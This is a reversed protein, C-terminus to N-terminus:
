YNRKPSVFDPDGLKNRDVPLEEKLKLYDSIAKLMTTDWQSLDFTGIMKM